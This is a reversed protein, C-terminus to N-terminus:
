SVLRSDSVLQADPYSSTNPTIPFMNPRFNLLPLPIPMSLLLIFVQLVLFLLVLWLAEFKIGSYMKVIFNSFIYPVVFLSLLTACLYDRARAFNWEVWNLPKRAGVMVLHYTTKELRLGLLQYSFAIEWPDHNNIDDSSSPTWKPQQSPACKIGDSWRQCWVDPTWLCSGTESLGDLSSELKGLQLIRRRGIWVHAKSILSMCALIM